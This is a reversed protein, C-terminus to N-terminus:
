INSEFFLEGTDKNRVFRFDYDLTEDLDLIAHLQFNTIEGNRNIVTLYDYFSPLSLLIDLRKQPDKRLQEFEQKEM